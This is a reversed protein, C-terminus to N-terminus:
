TVLAVRQWEVRWKCTGNTTHTHTHTNNSNGVIKTGGRSAGRHGLTSLSGGVGDSCSSPALPLRLLPRDWVFPIAQEFSPNLRRNYSKISEATLLAALPYRQQEQTCGTQTKHKQTNITPIIQRRNKPKTRMYTRRSRICTQHIGLKTNYILM